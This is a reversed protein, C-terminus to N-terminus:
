RRVHHDIPEWDGKVSTTSAIGALLAGAATFNEAADRLMDRHRETLSARHEPSMDALQLSIKTVAIAARFLQAEQEHTM